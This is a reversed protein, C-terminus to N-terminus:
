SCGAPAAPGVPKVNKVAIKHKSYRSQARYEYGRRRMVLEVKRDESQANSLYECLANVSKISKGDVSLLYSFARVDSLSAISADAVDHVFLFGEPNM